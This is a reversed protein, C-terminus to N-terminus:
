VRRKQEVAGAAVEWTATIFSTISKQFLRVKILTLISELAGPTSLMAAILGRKGSDVATAELLKQVLGAAKDSREADKAGHTQLVEVLQQLAQHAAM